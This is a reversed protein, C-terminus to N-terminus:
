NSRYRYRFPFCSKLAFDLCFTFVHGPDFNLKPDADSDPSRFYHVSSPDFVLTLDPGSPYKSDSDFVLTPNFNVDISVFYSFNMRDGHQYVQAYESSPCGDVLLPLVIDEPDALIHAHM